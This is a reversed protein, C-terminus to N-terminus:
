LNCLFWITTIYNYNKFVTIYYYWKILTSFFLCLRCCSYICVCDKTKGNNECIFYILIETFVLSSNPM